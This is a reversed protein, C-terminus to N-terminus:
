TGATKPTVEKTLRSSWPCWNCGPLFAGCAEDLHDEVYQINADCVEIAQTFFRITDPDFHFSWKPNYPAKKKIIRGNVHVEMQEEGNLVRRAHAILDDKTLMFVFEGSRDNTEFAFYAKAM